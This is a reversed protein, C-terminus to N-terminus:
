CRRRTPPGSRFLNELFLAFVGYYGVEVGDIDFPEGLPLGLDTAGNFNTTYIAVDHDRRAIARAM